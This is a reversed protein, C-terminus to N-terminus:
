VHSYIATRNFGSNRDGCGDSSEGFVRRMDEMFIHEFAMTVQMLSMCTRQAVADIGEHHGIDGTVLVDAGTHLATDIMSKGSGPSIAFTRVRADLDRFIKVAPLHFSKEEGNVANM